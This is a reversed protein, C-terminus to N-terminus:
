KMVRKFINFMVKAFVKKVIGLKIEPSYYHNALGTSKWFREDAIIPTSSLALSRWINFYMVNKFKPSHLKNSKVDDGFSKATKDIKSTDLSEVGGCKLAIKYVRNVGWHRLTEDIYNAVKNHGAGATTVVVLAKKTFFEPRHFLYATHDIFNKLLATVNLAYVPCGVIIADSQKIKDVIPNIKDYHPCKEEGEDMCKYCGVCMPINEKMLHIEEFEGELNSKVQKIVTCTNQKRPSGNIILYKMKDSM